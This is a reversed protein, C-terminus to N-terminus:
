KRIAATGLFGFASAFLLISAPLPIPMLDGAVELSDLDSRFQVDDSLGGSDLGSFDISMLTYTDTARKHGALAFGQSYTVDISGELNDGFVHFSYGSKTGYTDIGEQLSTSTDFVSNGAGANLSLAVLSKTVSLEFARWGFALSFDSGISQGWAGRTSNWVVTEMTGDLYSATVIMGTLDRGRTVTDGRIGHLSQYLVGNSDYRINITSATVACPTLLFVFLILLKNFM